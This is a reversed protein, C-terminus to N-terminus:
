TSNLSSQIFKFLFTNSCLIGLRKKELKNKGSYTYIVYDASVASLIKYLHLDIAGKLGILCFEMQNMESSKFCKNEQCEFLFAYLMTVCIFKIPNFDVANELCPTLLEVIICGTQFNFTYRGIYMYIYTYITNM